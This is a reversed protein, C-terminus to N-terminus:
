WGRKNRAKRAKIRAKGNLSRDRPEIDRSQVRQGRVRNRWMFGRSFEILELTKGSAM